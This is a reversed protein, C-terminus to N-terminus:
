KSGAGRLQIFKQLTDFWFPAGFLTATASILWGALAYVWNLNVFFNSWADGNWGMPLGMNQLQSLAQQATQGPSPSLGKIVMPQNWLAEAIKIADVNLIIALVLGISVSWFQTRRKYVGSVRNMGSDFWAAIDDRIRNLNGGTREIIGNLAMNLQPDPVVANIRAQLGPVNTGPSLGVVDILACAFQKPDIYSPKATLQAESTASGSSRANALGHNYISLALGSFQQDNLIDKVGQLLTNARWSLTSALAETVSSTVLSIVLFTFLLGVGIDLINSGFM